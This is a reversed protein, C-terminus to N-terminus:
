ARAYRIGCAPCVWNPGVRTLRVEVHRPCLPDMGGEMMKRVKARETSTAKKITAAFRLSSSLCEFIVRGSGDAQPQVHIVALFEGMPSPLQTGQYYHRLVEAENSLALPEHATSESQEKQKTM